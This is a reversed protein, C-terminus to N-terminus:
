LAACRGSMISVFSLADRWLPQRPWLDSEYWLAMATHPIRISGGTDSGLAGYVMRGAVALGLREVLRRYHPGYEPNRPTGAM